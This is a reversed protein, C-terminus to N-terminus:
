IMWVRFKGCYSRRILEAIALAIPRTQETTVNRLLLVITSVMRTAAVRLMTATTHASVRLHVTYVM